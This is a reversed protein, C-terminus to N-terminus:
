ICPLSTGSDHSYLKKGFHKGLVDLWPEMIDRGKYELCV